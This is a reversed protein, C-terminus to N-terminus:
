LLHNKDYFFYLIFASYILGNLNVIIGSGTPTIVDHISRSKEPKDLISKKYAFNLYKKLLFFSVFLISFYFIYIM